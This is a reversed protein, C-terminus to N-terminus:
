ISPFLGYVASFMLARTLSQCVVDPNVVGSFNRSRMFDNLVFNSQSGGPGFPRCSIAVGAVAHDVITLINHKQFNGLLLLSGTFVSVAAQRLVPRFAKAQRAARSM